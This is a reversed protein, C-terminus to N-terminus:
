DIVLLRLQNKHSANPAPVSGTLGPLLTVPPPASFFVPAGPTSTPSAPMGPYGYHYYEYPDSTIEHIVIAIDDGKLEADYGFFALSVTADMQTMGPPPTSGPVTHVQTLRYRAPPAATAMDTWLMDHLELGGSSYTAFLMDVRLQGGQMRAFVSPTMAGVESVVTVISFTAGANSSRALVLGDRREYAYLIQMSAGSGVVSVHPDFPVINQEWDVLTDTFTSQGFLRVACRYDATTTAMGGSAGFRTYGYGVVLDGGSSYALHSVLPTTDGGTDRVVVPAGWAYGIPTNNSDFGTPTGEVLMWQGVPQSAVEVTRWFLCGIKYDGSIAAQVLRWSWGLGSDLVSQIPFSGGRDLSVDARVQGDGTYVIAIVNGLAAIEQDRWYGTDLASCDGDGGTVSGTAAAVQLWQRRRAFNSNGDYAVITYRDGSVAIAPLGFLPSESSYVDTVSLMPRANQIVGGVNIVSSAGINIRVGINQTVGDLPVRFLLVQSANIRGSFHVRVFGDGEARVFNGQYVMAPAQMNLGADGLSEAGSTPVVGDNAVHAVSVSVAGSNGRARAVVTFALDTAAPSELEYTRTFTAIGFRSLNVSGSLTDTASPTIESLGASLAVESPVPLVPNQVYNNANGGSQSYGDNSLCGILFLPLVALPLLLLRHM